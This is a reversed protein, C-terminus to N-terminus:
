KELFKTIVDYVLFLFGGGFILLAAVGQFVAWWGTISPLGPRPVEKYKIVFASSIAIFLGAIAVLLSLHTEPIAENYIVKWLIVGGFLIVCGLIALGLTRFRVTKFYEKLFKM